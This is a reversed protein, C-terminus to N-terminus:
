IDYILMSNPNFHGQREQECMCALDRPRQYKKEWEKIEDLATSWNNNQRKIRSKSLSWSHDFQENDLVYPKDDGDSIQNRIIISNESKLDNIHFQLKANILVM